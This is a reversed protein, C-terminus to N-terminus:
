CSLLPLTGIWRCDEITISLGYREGDFTGVGMTFFSRTVKDRSASMTHERPSSIFLSRFLVATLFCPKTLKLSMCFPKFFFPTCIASLSKFVTNAFFPMAPRSCIGKPSSQEIRPRSFSTLDLSGSPPMKWIFSVVANDLGVNEVEINSAEDSQIGSFFFLGLICPSSSTRTDRNKSGESSSSGNIGTEKVPSTRALLQGGDWCRLLPDNFSDEMTVSTNNCTGWVGEARGWIVGEERWRVMLARVGAESATLGGGKATSTRFSGDPLLTLYM